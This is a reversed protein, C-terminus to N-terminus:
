FPVPATVRLLGRVPAGALKQVAADYDSLVARARDAFVRGADTLSLRRTTREALRVGTRGELSALARTIAPTSLRLRRAAGVLTGTEAIAVFVALEDVRDM